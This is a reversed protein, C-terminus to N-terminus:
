EGGICEQKEGNLYVEIDTQDFAALATGPLLLIILVILSLLISKKM